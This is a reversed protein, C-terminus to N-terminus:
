RMLDCARVIKPSTLRYYVNLEERRTAVIGKQRMLTLHQSLNRQSIGLAEALDTVAMEGSRLRDIVELRRSHALAQCIGAHLAYLNGAVLHREMSM